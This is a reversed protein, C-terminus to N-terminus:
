QKAAANARFIEEQVPGVVELVKTLVMAPSGMADISNIMEDPYCNLVPATDQEYVNFRHRIISENADDVRSERIARRKIRDVMQDLDLCTLHVVARVDIVESIMEAQHVNRPIGDLILLDERPKFRSLFIYAELAKRWIKVTLDDPVLEGKSIYKYIVQGEDSEIDISRFVDGSSLHFFGPVLGLIKGQTGKGVGPAGFLLAAKYRGNQSM